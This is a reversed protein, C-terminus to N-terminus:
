MVLDLHITWTELLNFLVKLRDLSSQCHNKSTPIYKKMISKRPSTKVNNEQKSNGFDITVSKVKSLQDNNQRSNEVSNKSKFPSNVRPAYKRTNKMKIVESPSTNLDM